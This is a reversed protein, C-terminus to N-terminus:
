NNDLPETLPNSGCIQNQM